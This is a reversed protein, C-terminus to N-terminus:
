YELHSVEIIDPFRYKGIVEVKTNVPIESVDRPDYDGEDENIVRYGFDNLYPSPDKEPVKVTYIREELIEREQSESNFTFTKVSVRYIFCNDVYGLFDLITGKIRVKDSIADMLHSSISVTEPDGTRWTSTVANKKMAQVVDEIQVNIKGSGSVTARSVRQGHKKDGFDVIVTPHGAVSLMMKARRVGSTSDAYWVEHDVEHQLALGALSELTVISNKM